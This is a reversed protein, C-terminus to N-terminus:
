LTIEAGPPQCAKLAHPLRPEMGPLTMRLVNPDSSNWSIDDKRLSGPGMYYDLLSLTNYRRQPLWVRLLGEPGCGLKHRWCASAM